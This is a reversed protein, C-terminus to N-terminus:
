RSTSTSSNTCHVSMWDETIKTRSVQEIKQMKSGEQQKRYRVRNYVKKVSADDEVLEFLSLSEKMTDRVTKMSIKANTCISESFLLDIDALQEKSLGRGSIHHWEADSQEEQEQNQKKYTTKLILPIPKMLPKNQKKGSM